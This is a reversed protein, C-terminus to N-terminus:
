SALRVSATCDIHLTITAFVKRDDTVGSQEGDPIDGNVASEVTGNLGRDDGVAIEIATALDWMRTEVAEVDDGARVIEIAVPITYTEMVQRGGLRQARRIDVANRITVFERGTPKGTGSRIVSVGALVEGTGTLAELLAVLNTRAGPISSAM